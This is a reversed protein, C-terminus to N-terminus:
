RLNISDYTVPYETPRNGTNKQYMYRLVALAEETEGCEILFKPSEPFFTLWGGLLLSNM